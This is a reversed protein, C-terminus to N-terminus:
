YRSWTSSIRRCCFDVGRSFNPEQGRRIPFDALGRNSVLFWSKLWLNEYIKTWILMM